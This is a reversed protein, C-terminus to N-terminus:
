QNGSTRMATWDYLSTIEESAKGNPEYEQATQGFILSRSYASRQHLVMPAVKLGHQQAASRADAEVHPARHPVCNLVVYAEKGVGKTIRATTGIARLDLIAARCPVLILDAVECIAMTADASHPASDIFILEVGSEEAVKLAKGLRGIQISTVIPSGTQRHDSWETASAQPDLDLVAVSQSRTSAEVALHLATTTKGAGGKQSLIAIVKMQKEQYILNGYESGYIFNQMLGAENTAFNTLQM